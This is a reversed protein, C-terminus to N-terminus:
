YEKKTRRAEMAEWVDMPEDDNLQKEKWCEECLSGVGEEEEFLLECIRCEKLSM